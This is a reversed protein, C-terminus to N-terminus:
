LVSKTIPTNSFPIKIEVTWGGLDGNVISLSQEKGYLQQLRARTNALGIGHRKNERISSDFPKKGNDSVSLKLQNGNRGAYIAIRGFGAQSEIGHRIANEVIPQLILPPLLANLIEPDVNQEIELRQGFRRQEIALYRRLLELERSLPIEQVNSSELSFRFLEGLDTIMEDATHPSTHVLTSIANLTNFLFHPNIQMRLLKLQAQALHAELEIARREREQSKRFHAFAVGASMTLLYIVIDPGARFGPSIIAHPSNQSASAMASPPPPLPLFTRYAAQSIIVVLACAVLHLGAQLYVNPRELPFRLSLWVILPFFFFWLLWFSCTHALSVSWPESNVVAATFSFLIVLGSWLCLAFWLPTLRFKTVRDIASATLPKLIVQV